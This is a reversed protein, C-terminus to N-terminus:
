HREQWFVLGERDICFPLIIGGLETCIDELQKRHGDRTVFLVCGGGGAGCTKGGVMHPAAAQYFTRLRPTSCSEHLRQHHTWNENLLRGFRDLDGEALSQACDNAVRTMNQLANVTPSNPLAYSRKIDDHISGSLHVEGTYVLVCRRELEYFTRRSIHIPRHEAGAGKNYVIFNLGGFAAGYSDQSGGAMNLDVREIANALEATDRRSRTAGGAADFAGVCAVGVAGSSGLGSGPFVESYLQLHFGYQPSMRKAIGVLLELDGNAELADLNPAQVQKRLNEATITVHPTDPHVDLRAYVHHCIGINVVAGGHEICFPPTDTGGGAADVRVPARAIFTTAETM